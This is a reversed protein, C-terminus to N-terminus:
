KTDYKEKQELQQILKLLKQELVKNRDEAAVTRKEAKTAKIFVDLVVPSLILVIALILCALVIMGKYIVKDMGGVAM